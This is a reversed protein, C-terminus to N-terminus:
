IVFSHLRTIMCDNKKKALDKGNYCFKNQLLFANDYKFFHFEFNERAFSDVMIEYSGIKGFEYTEIYIGSALSIAQETFNINYVPFLTSNKLNTIWIKEKKGAYWLDIQNYTNETIGSIEKGKLDLFSTTNELRLKPYFFPDLLAQHLPKNTRSAKISYYELEIATLEIKKLTWLEGFLDIKLKQM